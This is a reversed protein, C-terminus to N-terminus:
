SVNRKQREMEMKQREREEATEAKGGTEVLKANVAMAM